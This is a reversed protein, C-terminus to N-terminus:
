LIPQQACWAWYIMNIDITWKCNDAWRLWQWVSVRMTFSITYFINVVYVLQTSQWVTWLIPRHQTHSPKAQSDIYKEAMCEDIHTRTHADTHHRVSRGNQCQYKYNDQHLWQIGLRVIAWWWWKTCLIRLSSDMFGNLGYVIIDFNAM